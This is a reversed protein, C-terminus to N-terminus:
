LGVNIRDSSRQLQLLSAKENVIMSSRAVLALVDEPSSATFGQVGAGHNASTLLELTERITKLRLETVEVVFCNWITLRCRTNKAPLCKHATPMARFLTEM